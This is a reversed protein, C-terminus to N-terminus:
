TILPTGISLVCRPDDPSHPPESLPSPIPLRFGSSMSVMVTSFPCVAEANYPARHGGSVTVKPGVSIQGNVTSLGGTRANAGVTIGGNVTEADGTTANDEISIGGNVPSLGGYQKGAEATIRGNVKSVDENAWAAGSVLALALLASLSHHHKMRVELIPPAGLTTDIPGRKAGIRM